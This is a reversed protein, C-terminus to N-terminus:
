NDNENGHDFKKRIALIFLGHKEIDEKSYFKEVEKTNLDYLIECEIERGTLENTEEDQEKLVLTDGPSADFDALRVEFRKKGDIVDQFYKHKVKKEIAM